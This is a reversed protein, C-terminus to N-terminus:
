RKKRMIILCKRCIFSDKTKLGIKKDVKCEKCRKKDRLKTLM